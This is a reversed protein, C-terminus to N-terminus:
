PMCGMLGARCAWSVLGRSHHLVVDPIVSCHGPQAPVVAETHAAQDAVGAGECDGLQALQQGGEGEGDGQDAGAVAPSFLYLRGRAAPSQQRLGPM